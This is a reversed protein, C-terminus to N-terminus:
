SHICSFENKQKTILVRKLTTVKSPAPTLYKSMTTADQDAKQSISLVTGLFFPWKKKVNTERARKNNISEKLQELRQFKKFRPEYRLRAPDNEYMHGTCREQFQYFSHPQAHRKGHHNKPVSTGCDPVERQDYWRGSIRGKGERWGSLRRAFAKWHITTALHIWGHIKGCRNQDQLIQTPPPLSELPEKRSLFFLSSWDKWM